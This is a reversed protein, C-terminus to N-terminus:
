ETFWVKVSNLVSWRAKRAVDPKGDIWRQVMRQNFGNVEQARQWYNLFRRFQPANTPLLYAMMLEGGLDKPVVATYDTRQATWAKAQALTWIAADIEPHEPLVDYNPLVVVKAGPMLRNALDIMVPDKFVAFTLNKQAKIAARSLFRDAAGAHVILAVPSRLYPESVVFHQLRENTVYIGSLALDFRSDSLDQALGDWTFPMLRLTVNLDRALQYAHAIDFGVLDGNANVYSFPIINPNYGVKLEGSSQIRDFVAKQSADVPERDSVGLPEVVATVGHTTEPALKFALYRSTSKEVVEGEVIRAVATASIVIVGGILLSLVLRLPRLRLKGYYRMTVLFTVFAFGIVSTVVQGYRTISMMGVYLNTAEPPLSLWETLFSVSGISSSPSGFGSLLSVFPLFVQDGISLPARYYFAAFLVFLWVFFNGLQALPYSVALSTRIIESSEPDEIEAQRALKEAARQIFPLAAVSLSTVVAIMLAGQLDKLVERTTMPCLAAMVSPLIWFALILTGLVMAFLYLSLDALEEPALTGAADAFLAFVGLPALLVVWGWITVSATRILDLVSLLAEKNRVRQIAIGYVISFIVIAPLHNRVIDLFPNAPIVLDLLGLGSSSPVRADIFSPPPAPPIALSMLFIVLFTIVWVLVFFLWGRRFLLWATDPSLRGLGHLLSCIIYPFVVVEMLNVYATGIPRLLASHDGFFVGTVVGVVAGALVWYPLRASYNAFLLTVKAEM